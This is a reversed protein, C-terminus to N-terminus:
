EGGEDHEDGISGVVPPQDSEYLAEKLSHLVAMTWARRKVKFADPLVNVTQEEWNDVIADGKIKDLVDDSLKDVIMDSVIDPATNLDALNAFVPFFPVVANLWEPGKLVKVEQAPQHPPLTTAPIQPAVSASGSLRSLMELVPKGLESIVDGYGKEKPGNDQGREFGRDYWELFNALLDKPDFGQQQGERMKTAIDTALSLMKTPDAGSEQQKGVLMAFVMKELMESHRMQMALMMKMADNGSDVVPAAGNGKPQGLDAIAVIHTGYYGQPYQPSKPGRAIFKYMGPGYTKRIYDEDALDPSLSKVYEWRGTDANQRYTPVRIDKEGQFKEFFERASTAASLTREDQLEAIQEGAPAEDDPKRGRPM